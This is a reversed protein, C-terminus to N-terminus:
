IYHCCNWIFNNRFNNHLWNNEKEEFIESIKQIKQHELRIGFHQLILEHFKLLDKLLGWDWYRNDYCVFILWSEINKIFRNDCDGWYCRMRTGNNKISNQGYREWLSNLRIFLAGDSWSKITGGNVTKGVNEQYREDAEPM